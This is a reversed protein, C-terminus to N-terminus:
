GVAVPPSPTLNWYSILEPMAREPPSVPYSSAPYPSLKVLQGAPVVTFRDWAHSDPVHPLVGLALERGRGAAPERRRGDGGGGEGM